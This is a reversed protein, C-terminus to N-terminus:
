DVSHDMPGIVLLIAYSEILVAGLAARCVNQQEFFHGAPGMGGPMM